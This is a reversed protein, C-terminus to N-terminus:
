LNVIIKTTKKLLEVISDIPANMQIKKLGFRKQVQFESAYCQVQFNSVIAYFYQSQYLYSMKWVLTFGFCSNRMVVNAILDIKM